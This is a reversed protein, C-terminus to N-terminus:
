IDADGSELDFGGVPFGTGLGSPASVMSVMVHVAPPM